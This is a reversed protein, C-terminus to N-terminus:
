HRLRVPPKRVSVRLARSGAGARRGDGRWQAVFVSTRRLKWNTAFRGGSRVRVAKFRWDNAGKRARPDAETRSVIVLQGTEAPRLRGTIEVKRGRAVTRHRTRLRLSSRRGADGGSTTSFLQDDGALLFDIRDRTALLGNLDRSDAVIQPRWSAGGDSTRLVYDPRDSGKAFFLDSAVVYGDRANSFALEIGGDTGTGVLERWTRGQNRTRWVRGGKGLAFGSRASVFDLGALPRHDPRHLKRWTRGRDPSAFMSTPGFAFLFGGAHDVDFLGARRVAPRKVPTFTRGGDSSRKIGRSGVLLVHEADTALVAQPV